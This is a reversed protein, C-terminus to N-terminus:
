LHKTVSLM